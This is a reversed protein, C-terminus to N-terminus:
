DLPFLEHQILKVVSYGTSDHHDTAEIRLEALGKDVYQKYCDYMNQDIESASNYASTLADGTKGPFPNYIYFTKEEKNYLVNTGDASYSCLLKREGSDNVFYIAGSKFRGIHSLIEADTDYTYEVIERTALDEDFADFKISIRDDMVNPFIVYTHKDKTTSGNHVTIEPIFNGALAARIVTNVFLKLESTEGM